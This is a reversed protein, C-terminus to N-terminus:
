LSLLNIQFVFVNDGAKRIRYSADIKYCVGEFHLLLSHERVEENLADYRVSYTLRLGEVPTITFSGQLYQTTPSQRQYNTVTLATGPWLNLGGRLLVEQLTGSDPAVRLTSEVWWRSWPRLDLDIDLPGVLQGKAGTEQRIDIGQSLILHAVERVSRTGSSGLGQAYFRNSLTLKAYNAARIRDILTFDNLPDLFHIDEDLASFPPIGDQFVEPVYRYAIHPQIVHILAQGALLGDYRRRFAPGDLVALVDPVQRSITGPGTSRHDYITEHVGGTVALGLWPPVVVPVTLRPFFDFRQVSTNDLIDTTSLRAYSTDLGFLLGGPLSTPFQSFRMRPLYRFQQTTGSAPIGDYSAGEFTIGGNTFLKTLSGFSATRIASEEAISQSFRRVIDGESRKDIQTLGRIGWGFDQRQQILLRYLDQDTVRDQIFAFKLQGDSAPDIAYRMEVSPMVGSKSLYEVGITSDLWDTMAWFFDEGVINGSVDSVGLRPPLFGTTRKDKIPFIFYPVYFVPIGKIWFSPHKMTIYDGLDIQAEPSRFEWEPVASTCTTIRGRQVTLTRAEVREVREGSLHYIKSAKGTADYFVGRETNLDFDIRSAEIDDNPTIFRIHGWATGTNTDTHLELQDAFLRRNGYIVRVNGTAVVRKTQQLYELTEAQLLVRNQEDPPASPCPEPPTTPSAAPPRANTQAQLSSLGVHSMFWVCLCIIWVRLLMPLQESQQSFTTLM